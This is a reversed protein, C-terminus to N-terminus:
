GAKAPRSRSGAACPSRFRSFPRIYIQSLDPTVPCCQRCHAAPPRSLCSMLASLTPNPDSSGDNIVECVAGYRQEVFGLEWCSSGEEGDGM